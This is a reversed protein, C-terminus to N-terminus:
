VAAGGCVPLNIGTIFKSHDSLFFAVADAVDEAETLKGTPSQKAVMEKYIRPHESNLDTDVFGPSVANVRIGEGVLDSACSRMFGILGYKATIYGSLRKPPLGITDKSANFVISGSKQKLLHPLAAKVINYAGHVQVELHNAIDEWPEDQIYKQEIARGANHVIGDIKGYSDLTAKVLGEVAKGDTVDAQYAIAKGGGKVISEVTKKAQKENNLYNVVVSAGCSAAKTAIAKGIGRGAGTVIVVKDKLDIM